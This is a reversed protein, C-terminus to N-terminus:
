VLRKLQRKVTRAVRSLLSRGAASYDMEYHWNSQMVVGLYNEQLKELTEGMKRQAFYQWDAHYVRFLPEIPRLPISNYALLAEGYWRLEAPYQNIADILSMGRPELYQTALDQWVKSAWIVPTPGFDYDPGCRGFIAKAHACASRYDEVFKPKGLNLALQLLEKSQHLATYPVGDAALFDATQFKRIFVSDSDMCLYATCTHLRWFESKVVQQAKRPDMEQLKTWSLAPNAAVIEEDSLWECRDSGIHDLFLQRDGRPVSIFVPMNDANCAEISDMLRKVRLVDQHYSKCFLPIGAV